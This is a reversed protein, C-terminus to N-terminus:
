ELHLVSRRKDAHLSAKKIINYLDKPHRIKKFKFQPDTKDSTILTVTGIGVVCDFITRSLSLDVVRFMDLNDVQRNLIGRTYEIRDDTIEYYISKLFAFRIFLIFTSLCMLGVGAMERYHIFSQRYDENPVANKLIKEIYDELPFKYILIAVAIVIVFKILAGTAAFISPRGWFLVDEDMEDEVKEPEEEIEEEVEEEEYQDEELEDPEELFEACYRCKIAAAQIIESCFPCKKTNRGKNM